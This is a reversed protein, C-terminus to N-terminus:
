FSPVAKQNRKYSFAALAILLLDAGAVAFVYPAGGGGFGYSHLGAALVFNVGYWAMIVGLFAAVSGVAIGFNGLWGAFRGHLVLLYGLLAIVAWTEKPDWGWFRGWSYNAWVGGLVTGSALLIVGIQMARYLFRSLKQHAQIPDRSFVFSFIVGHGLGWALAFAAYSLTITLVHITLWFNSRLVPVLPSLSADLVVPFSEAIILAFGAVCGATLPIFLTRYVGFLILSFLAVGWSVWIVSEYMNTVPPRGAILCRLFFGYFHVAFGALFSVLGAAAAGQKLGSSQFIFSATVKKEFLLLGTLFLASLLYLKWAWKFPRLRNYALERKLTEHDLIIGRSEFLNELSLAYDSAAEFLEESAGEKRLLFLLKQFNGSVQAAKEPPFFQALLEGGEAGAFAKLPLWGAKPDDPHAIWGPLSGNAIEQFFLARDYIEIRKQDEFSLKEKRDKRMIAHQTKEIFARHHLVTEPSVRGRILMLSFEEQLTKLAVPIMPEPAWKEPKAIWNWVLRTPPIGQFNNKGTVTLAAERSFSEFPKIRGNHQVPMEALIDYASQASASPPVSLILAAILFIKRPLIKM